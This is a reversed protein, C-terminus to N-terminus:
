SLTKLTIILQYAIYKIFLFFIHSLSLFKKKKKKKQMFM